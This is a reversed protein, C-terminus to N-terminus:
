ARKLRPPEAIQALRSASGFRTVFRRVADPGAITEPHLAAVILFAQECALGLAQLARPLADRGDEAIRRAAGLSLGAADALATEFLPRHPDIATDRLRSFVDAAATSSPPAMMARLKRRTSEATDPQAPASAAPEARAEVPAHRAAADREIARILEAVAPHLGPRRAIARAHSRGHRGIIGVLDIDALVPSRVLLPAAIEVPEECLRRVLGPPARDAESFAAAAFRRSAAPVHDLLSLTLDDIQAIEARAPRTLACFATIAAHFLQEKRGARGAGSSTFAAPSLFRM